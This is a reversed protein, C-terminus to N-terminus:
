CGLGSCPSPEVVIGYTISFIVISTRSLRAPSIGKIPFPVCGFQIFIYDIRM